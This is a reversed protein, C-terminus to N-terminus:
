NEPYISELFWSLDAPNFRLLYTGGPASVSFYRDTVGGNKVRYTLNLAEITLVKGKWRFRRPVVAREKFTALVDISESLLEEM